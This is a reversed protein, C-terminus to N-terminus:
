RATIVAPSAGFRRVYEATVLPAHLQAISRAITRARCQWMDHAGRPLVPTDTQACLATATNGVRQLLMRAGQPSNLDLDNIKVQGTEVVVPDAAFASGATASAMLGAICASLILRSM